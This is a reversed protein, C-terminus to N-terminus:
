DARLNELRLPSACFCLLILMLSFTCPSTAPRGQLRSRRPTLRPVSIATRTERLSQEVHTIQTMVPLIAAACEGPTGSEAEVSAFMAEIRAQVASNVRKQEETGTDDPSTPIVSSLGAYWGGLTTSCISRFRDLNTLPAGFFARSTMWHSYSHICLSLIIHNEKM